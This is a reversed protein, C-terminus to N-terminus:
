KKFGITREPDDGERLRELYEDARIAEETFSNNKWWAWVSIIITFGVSVLETLQDEGIPLISHGTITLIQNLLAYVLIVTRIITEKKM